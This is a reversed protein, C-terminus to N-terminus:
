GAVTDSNASHSGGADDKPASCSGQHTRAPLSSETVKKARDGPLATLRQRLGAGARRLHPRQRSLDVLRTRRRDRGAEALARPRRRADGRPEGAHRHDVARGRQRPHPRRAARRRTGRDAGRRGGQRRHLRHRRRRSRGGCALEVNVMRGGRGGARMNRAAERCCLFATTLNLELQERLDALTTDLIPAARFGGALHVSAWLPPRSAYFAGVAAEDTLDVGAASVIRADQRAGQRAQEGRGLLPLHCTAGAALLADVVAPGLGGAAGTVVVHRGELDGNSNDSNSDMPCSSAM